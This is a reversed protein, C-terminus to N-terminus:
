LKGMIQAKKEQFESDTLIGEDRLNALKRLQDAYDVSPGQSDNLGQMVVPAPPQNREQLQGLIAMRFAAANQRSVCFDIDGAATSVAVIQGKDGKRISVGVVASLPLTEFEEKNGRLGTFALSLGSTLIAAVVKGGSIGGGKEWELRDPWLTIRANKGDGKTMVEFIPKAPDLQTQLYSTNTDRIVGDATNGATNVNKTVDEFGQRAADKLGEIRDRILGGLFSPKDNEESM